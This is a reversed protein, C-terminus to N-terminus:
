SVKVLPTRETSKLDISQTKLYLRLARLFAVIDPVDIAGINALRFCDIEGVKGPYITFGEALLADHMAAFSFRPHRPSLFTTLLKSQPLDPVALAFGIEQMGHVLTDWCRSYRAHREAGTEEFYEDLAADLAYLVQVPPTFRMQLTDRFGRHQAYLDLYLSRPRHDPPPTLLTSRGIVFSIGAMGQLCKNSSSILFDFPSERLDIPIGAYSSMADVILTVGLAATTRSLAEVPNLVGTTTEHHVAVVHTITRDAALMRGIAGIDPVEDFGVESLVVQDPRLHLRCMERIRAGYAGNVMVLIRGSPPMLSSICAEVACTGSGAFLVAEHTGQGHVIEVLREGISAQLRGFDIERPCIDAVVQAQKVRVSTTAPGPTLLINRPM